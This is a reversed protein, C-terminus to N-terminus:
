KMWMDKKLQNAYSVKSTDRRRPKAENVIGRTSQNGTSVVDIRGPGFRDSGDL